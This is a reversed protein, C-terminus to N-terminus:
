ATMNLYKKHLSSISARLDDLNGDNKLVDDARELRTQRDMQSSMIRQIQAESRGDRQQTRRIRIGDDADIVIIRDVLDTFNSEFLLPISLIIYPSDKTLAIEQLIRQRVMPHLISELIIKKSPDSFFTEAMKKRDLEGDSAIFDNGFERIIKSFGENGSLTLQHAIRDADIIAIGLSSFIETATSKGSGIGGTLGIKLM